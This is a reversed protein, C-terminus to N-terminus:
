YPFVLIIFHIHFIDADDHELAHEVYRSGSELYDNLLIHNTKVTIHEITPFLHQRELNIGSKYVTIEHGKEVLSPMINSLYTATGGECFMGSRSLVVVKM